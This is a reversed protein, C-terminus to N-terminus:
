CLLIRGDTTQAYGMARSLYQATSVPPREPGGAM